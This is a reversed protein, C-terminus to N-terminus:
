EEWLDVRTGLCPPEEEQVLERVYEQVSVGTAEELPLYKRGVFGSTFQDLRELFPLDESPEWLFLSSGYITQPCGTIEGDLINASFDAFSALLGQERYFLYMDFFFGPEEAETAGAHIWIEVPSGYLRAMTRLDGYPWLSLIDLEITDILGYKVHYIQERPDTHYHDSEPQVAVHFSTHSAMPAISYFDVALPELKVKADVWRTEGPVIGWWCPLRCGANNTYLEQLIVQAEEKPLSPLPTWTPSVTPTRTPIATRTATGTATVIATNAKRTPQLTPEAVVAETPQPPQLTVSQVSSCAACLVLMSFWFGLRTLKM